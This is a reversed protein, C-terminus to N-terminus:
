CTFYLLVDETYYRSRIIDPLPHARMRYLRQYLTDSPLIQALVTGAVFLLTLRGNNNCEQTDVDGEWSPVVVGDGTLRPPERKGCPVFCTSLWLLSTVEKQPESSTRVSTLPPMAPSSVTPPNVRCLEVFYGLGGPGSRTSDDAPKVTSCRRWLGYFSTRITPQALIRQGCRNELVERVGDGCACLRYGVDGHACGRVEANLVTRNSM